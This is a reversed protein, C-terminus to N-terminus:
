GNVEVILAKAADSVEIEGLNAENWDSLMRAIKQVGTRYVESDEKYKLLTDFAEQWAAADSSVYAVYKEVMSIAEATRNTEFYYVALHIPITNSDLKALRQAYEDAQARISADLEPDLANDVYTLAHDAWEFKDLSVAEDMADFTAETEAVARARMNGVLLLAYVGILVCLILLAATKAAKGLKVPLPEGCCLSILAFVGFAAPLYAYSSFVVETAAHGAMFVLAAGLAPTLPHATEGRRRDLLVAAASGGLLALFLLLGIVGTEALSQIYHNHAYKTEYYFSQVSKIGNEFAGIGLGTVPSRRFLKLGDDFFVLRQIANENAWLGQLRNAIFGPLLKYGLPISESGCFASQIHAGEPASFNFYVVLSDEPVEFAADSADGSYLDTSTHM